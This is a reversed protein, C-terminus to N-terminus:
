LSVGESQLAAQLSALDGDHLITRMGLEQAPLLNLDRDDILLANGPDIQTIQLAKQYMDPAPKRLGLYCSSLFVTFLSRLGFEEIRYRNLELPENNLMAMQYRGTAAISRAFDLMKPHPRSQAFMFAEFDAVSFRREEHFVVADLYQWMTMRGTEFAESWEQHREELDAPDIQFHDAAAERSLHDWGNTLLVGGVDWFLTTIQAM